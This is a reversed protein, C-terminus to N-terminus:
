KSELWTIKSPPTNACAISDSMGGAILACANDIATRRAEDRSAGSATRCASQGKFEMCIEVRHEGLGRTSYYMIAGFALAFLAVIWVAPKNM